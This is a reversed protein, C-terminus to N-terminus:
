WNQLYSFDYNNNVGDAISAWHIKLAKSSAIISQNTANSYYNQTSRTILGLTDATKDLIENSVQNDPTAGLTGSNSFSLILQNGGTMLAMVYSGFQDITYGVLNIVVIGTNIADIIARAMEQIMELRTYAGPYMIVNVAPSSNFKAYFQNNTIDINIKGIVSTDPIDYTSRILYQVGIFPQIVSFPQPTANSATILTGTPSYIDSFTKYGANNNPTGALQGSGGAGGGPTPIPHAHPPVNSATLTMNSSGGSLTLYNASLDYGVNCGVVGQIAHTLNTTGMPVRSSFNPLTFDFKPDIGSNLQNYISGIALFLDPNDDQTHIEGNAVYFGLPNRPSPSIIVSGIPMVSFGSISKSVTPATTTDWSLYAM